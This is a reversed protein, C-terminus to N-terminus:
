YDALPKLIASRETLKIEIQCNLCITKYKKKEIVVTTQETFKSLFGCQECKKNKVYGDRKWAPIKFENNGSLCVECKSRYFIKDNKVYNIAKPRIGCNKCTGREFVKSLDTYETLINDQLTKEDRYEKGAAQLIKYIISKSLEYQKSNIIKTGRAISSMMRLAFAMKIQHENTTIKSLLLHAFFHERPTLNVLNFLEDNGGMSRPLIHHTEYFDTKLKRSKRDEIFNKYITYYKNEIFM